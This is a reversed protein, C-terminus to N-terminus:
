ERLRTVITHDNHRWWCDITVDDASRCGLSHSSPSSTYLDESKDDNFPDTIDRLFNFLTHVITVFLKQAWDLTIKTNNERTADRSPFYVGFCGERSRMLMRTCVNNEILTIVARAVFFGVQTLKSYSGAAMTWGSVPVVAKLAASLQEVIYIYHMYIHTHKPHTPTATHTHSHPTITPTPTPTPTALSLTLPALFCSYICYKIGHGM